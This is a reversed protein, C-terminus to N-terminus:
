ILSKKISEVFSNFLPHPKSVRSKYEPHFQTAIFFPHESVPLEVIEVLQGDPSKGSIVLGAETLQKEYSNNFEYRHRHREQISGTAYVGHALTEPLLTCSYSGLRMTGGKDTSETQGPLFHIVPHPTESDFETSNAGSLGAVNRAFELVTCQMGLCLGLFPIKNERVYQITNIKGEVGREGFGGPIIVGQVGSLHEGMDSDSTLEESHVWKINVNCLNQAGAHRLSEVLSIYSDGLEAYKGVIAVTVPELARSSKLKQVAEVWSTLDPETNTLGLKQLVVETMKQEELKLPVEYITEADLCEIVSQENVGTFLALKEKMSKDLSREARCVLVDPNIGRSRLFEVSHQTPKTKLESTPKLEPILTTHIYAVNNGGADSRIQRIAELFILSEIDGVTGGVEAIIIDSQHAYAAEFIKVKIQNSVHPVMQVTGGLYEGRREKDIVDSYIQGATINNIQSLNTDIFREYHGLDLDTEAGDETVFVEGHQYPSMTGPDVNLYPDLKQITVKFGREKLLRGLSAAVIGKGLSSVVGGTVFIYKPQISESMSAWLLMKGCLFGALGHRLAASSYTFFQRSIATNKSNRGSHHYPLRYIM